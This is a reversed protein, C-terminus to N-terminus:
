NLNYGVSFQFTRNLFKITEGTANGFEDTLNVEDIVSILGHAYRMEIMFKSTPSMRIGTAIGLDINNDWIDGVDVTNSDFKSKASLLYGFEPGLNIRFNNSIAYGVLVPLNIYNLNLNGEESLNTADFHYGKNSYLIESQIGFKESIEFIGYGGFLYSIKYKNNSEESESQVNNVYNLGAKIGYKIQAFSNNHALTFLLAILLIKKM